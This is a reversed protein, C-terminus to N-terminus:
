RPGDREQNLSDRITEQSEQFHRRAEDSDHQWEDATRCVRKSMRTGTPTVERCIRKGTDAKLPSAAPQTAPPDAAASASQTLLAASATFAFVVVSKGRM